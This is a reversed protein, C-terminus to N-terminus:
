PTRGRAGDSLLRLSWCYVCECPDGECDAGVAGVARPDYAWRRLAARLRLVHGELEDREDNAEELQAQLARIEDEMARIRGGSCQEPATGTGHCVACAIRGNGDHDSDDPVYAEGNCTPCPIRPDTM